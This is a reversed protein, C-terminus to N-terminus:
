QFLKWVYNNTQDIMTKTISDQGHESSLKKELEQVENPTLCLLTKIVPLLQIREDMDKLTLYKYVVNKLYEMSKLSEKREQNFDLKRIEEKLLVIQHEYHDIENDKEENLYQLQQKEKVLQQYEDKDIFSTTSPILDSQDEKMGDKQLLSQLFYNQKNEKMEVVETSSSSSSPSLTSSSVNMREVTQIDDTQIQVDYSIFRNEKKDEYENLLSLYTENKEKSEQYKNATFTIETELKDIRRRERENLDELDRKSSLLEIKEKRLNEITEESNKLLRNLEEVELKVRSKEEDIIDITQIAKEYSVIKLNINENYSKEKQLLQGLVKQHRLKEDELNKRERRWDMERENFQNVQEILQLSRNRSELLDKTLQHLETQNNEIIKLQNTKTEELKRIIETKDTDVNSLLDSVNKYEDRMEEIVKERDEITENLKIVLNSHKKEIEMKKEIEEKLQSLNNHLDLCSEEKEKLQRRAVALQKQFDALELHNVNTMKMQKELEKRLQNEKEQLKLNLNKNTKVSEVSDTQISQDQREVQLKGIIENKSIETVNNPQVIKKGDLYQAFQSVIRNEYDKNIKQYYDCDIQSSHLLNNFLEKPEINVYKQHIDCINENSHCRRDRKKTFLLKGNEIEGKKLTELKKSLLQHQKKSETLEDEIAKNTKKLKLMVNAQKRMGDLLQERSWADIKSKTMTM